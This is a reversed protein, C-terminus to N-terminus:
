ANMNKVGDVGGIESMDNFRVTTRKGLLRKNRACVFIERVEQQWDM